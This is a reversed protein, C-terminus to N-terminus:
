GVTPTTTVTGTGDVTVRVRDDRWDETLPEGEAVTHVNRWSGVAGGAAGQLEPREAVIHRVADEGSMGVCEPWSTKPAAQAPAPAAAASRKEDDAMKEAIWAALTGSGMGYGGPLPRLDRTQIAPPEGWHVPYRGGQQQQRAKELVAARGAAQRARIQELQQQAEAPDTRPAARAAGARAAARDLRNSRAPQQHQEQPHPESAPTPEGMETVGLRAQQEATYVAATWTGM